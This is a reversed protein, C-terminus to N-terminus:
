LKDLSILKICFVTPVHINTILIRLTTVTASAAICNTSFTGKGAGMECLVSFVADELKFAHMALYEIAESDSELPISEVLDLTWVQEQEQEQHSEASSEYCGSLTEPLSSLEFINRYVVLFEAILFISKLLFKHHRKSIIITFLYNTM